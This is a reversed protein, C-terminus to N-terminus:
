INKQKNNDPGDLDSDANFSYNVDSMYANSLSDMRNDNLISRITKNQSDSQSDFNHQREENVDGMNSISGIRSERRSTIRVDRSEQGNMNGMKLTNRSLVSNRCSNNKRIDQKLTSSKRQNNQTPHLNGLVSFRNSKSRHSFRLSPLSPHESLSEFSQNLAMKKQFKFPELFGNNVDNLMCNIDVSNRKNKLDTNIVCNISNQNGSPKIFFDEYFKDNEINQGNKDCAFPSLHEENDDNQEFRNINTEDNSNDSSFGFDIDYLPKTFYQLKDTVDIAKETDFRKKFEPDENKIEEIIQNTEILTLGNQTCINKVITLIAENTVTQFQNEKYIGNKIFEKIKDMKERKPKDKTNKAFYRYATKFARSIRTLKIWRFIKALRAIKTGVRSARVARTLSLTEEARYGISIENEIWPLDFILSFTSVMDMWFVFSCVYNAKGNFSLIIEIVFM